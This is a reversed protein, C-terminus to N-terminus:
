DIDCTCAIEGGQIWEKYRSGCKMKYQNCIAQNGYSTSNGSVTTTVNGNIIDDTSWPKSTTAACGSLLTMYLGLLIFFTKNSGIM